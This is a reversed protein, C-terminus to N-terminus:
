RRRAPKDLGALERALAFPERDLLPAAAQALLLCPVALRVRGAREWAYVTTPTTQAQAAAHYVGGLADIVTTVM